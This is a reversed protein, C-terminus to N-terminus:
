KARYRFQAPTLKEHQRFFRTFYNPDEFGIEYGIEAISLDSYALFRKAELMLREQILFRPAMGLARTIQMTLAKPTMSLDDAYFSVGHELKFHLEISKRLREVLSIKNEQNLHRHGESRLIQVLFGMLFGKLCTDFQDEKKLFEHNMIECLVILRQFELLKKLALSDELFNIQNILDPANPFDQRLSERNFEVLYGKITTSLEWSHIQGPKMVYIQRPSVKHKKFDIQHWGTGSCVLMIQYFDHKHPFAVAPDLREELKEVRISSTSVKLIGLADIPHLTKIKYASHKNSTM